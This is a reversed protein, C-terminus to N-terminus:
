SKMICSQMGISFALTNQLGIFQVTMRLASVITGALLLSSHQWVLLYFFTIHHCTIFLDLSTLALSIEVTFCLMCYSLVTSLIWTTSQRNLSIPITVEPRVAEVMMGLHIVIIINMVGVYEWYIVHGSCLNQVIYVVVLINLIIGINM